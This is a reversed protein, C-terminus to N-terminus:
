HAGLTGKSGRAYMVLQGAESAIRKFLDRCINDLADMTSKKMSKESVSRDANKMTKYIFRKYGEVAKKVNKQGPKRGRKAGKKKTASRTGAPM